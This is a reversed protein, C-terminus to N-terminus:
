FCLCFVCIQFTEVWSESHKITILCKFLNSDALIEVIIISFLILYFLKINEQLLVKLGAIFSFAGFLQHSFSSLCDCVSAKRLRINKLGSKSTCFPRKLLIISGTICRFWSFLTKFFFVTSTKGQGLLLRSRFGLFRTSNNREWLIHFYCVIDNLM